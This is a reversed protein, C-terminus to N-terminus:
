PKMWDKQCFENCKHRYFVEKIGKNGQDKPGFSKEISHITPVTLFYNNNDDIAGQLDCIVLKGESKHYSFHVFAILLEPCKDHSTGDVFIFNQFEGYIREEILVLDGSSLRKNRSKFFNCVNNWASSMNDIETLYSKVFVINSKRIGSPLEKGFMKAYTSGTISLERFWHSKENRSDKSDIDGHKVSKVVCKMKTWYTNYPTNTSTIELKEDAEKMTEDENEDEKKFSISSKFSIGKYVIRHDGRKFPYYEFSAWRNDGKDDFPISRSTSNMDTQYSSSAGM